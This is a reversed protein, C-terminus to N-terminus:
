ARAKGLPLTEGLWHGLTLAPTLMMGPCFANGLTAGSGLVEGAAYLNPIPRGEPGLVRLKSDVVLGTASTASHGMHIVGYFPTKEIRRPMYERGLLSDKWCDVSANYDRVTAALGNADVRLKAALEGLSDARAFMPHSAFHEQMKARSFGPVGV